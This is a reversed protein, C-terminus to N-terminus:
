EAYPTVIVDWHEELLAFRRAELTRHAARDPYLRATAAASAQDFDGGVVVAADADRYVITVRLDWRQDGAMHTFPQDIRIASIFGQRRMEELIPAHNLRYLEMFEAFSGWRIRYYHEVTVAGTARAPAAVSPGTSQAGGAAPLAVLAAAAILILRMM